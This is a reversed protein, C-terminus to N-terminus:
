EQMRDISIMVKEYNEFDEVELISGDAVSHLDDVIQQFDLDRLEPAYVAGIDFGTKLM